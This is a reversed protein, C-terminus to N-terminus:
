SKVVTLDILDVIIRCLKASGIRNQAKRFIVGLMGSQTGLYELERYHSDLDMGAKDILSNWDFGSSCLGRTLLSRGRM